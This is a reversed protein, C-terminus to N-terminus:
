PEQGALKMLQQLQEQPLEKVLEQQLRLFAQLQAPSMLQMAEISAQMGAQMIARSLEPNDAIFKFQLGASEYIMQAMLQPNQVMIQLQSEMALALVAQREEPPLQSLAILMDNALKTYNEPTMRAGPRWAEVSEVQPARPTLAVRENLVLYAMRFGSNPQEMVGRYEKPLATNLLLVTGHEGNPELAVLGGAQLARLARYIQSVNDGTAATGPPLYVRKWSLKLQGAIATLVDELAADQWEGTVKGVATSDPLILAGSAEGVRALLAAVPEGKASLTLRKPAAPQPAAPAEPAALVPAALLSVSLVALWRRRM